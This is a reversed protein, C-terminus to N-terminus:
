NNTEKFNGYRKRIVPGEFGGNWVWCENNNEYDKPVIVKSWFREIIYDSWDM